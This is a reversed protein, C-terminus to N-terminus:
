RWHPTFMGAQKKYEEYLPFVRSLVREEAKARLTLTLVFVVFTLWYLGENWILAQGFFALFYATYLPHRMYRYLGRRVLKRAEPLQTFATNLLLLAWLELVFACLILGNGAAARWMPVWERTALFDTSLLPFLMIFIAAAWGWLDTSVALPKHGTTYSLFVLELLAFMSFLWVGARVAAMLLAANVGIACLQVFIRLTDRM